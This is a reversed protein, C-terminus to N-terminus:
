LAVDKEKISIYQITFKSLVKRYSFVLLKKPLKSTMKSNKSDFSVGQHIELGSTTSVSNILSFTTNLIDASACWNEM